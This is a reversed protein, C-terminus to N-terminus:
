LQLLNFQLKTYGHKQAWLDLPVSAMEDVIPEARGSKTMDVTKIYSRCSDCAEVRVHVLEEATYVPLKAHNEEGCGPCVIRRFEWEALCFSCVLSRQGGDGLPRLVGLAPRRKCFPCLFPTPGTWRLSSRSRISAAYPQLFARAFFDHPGPPLSGMESGNWFVTLLQFYSDEGRDRLERAAERLSDPASQEVVSLFTAFRGTLEPPLPRVFPESDAAVGTAGGSSRDLARGLEGHFREQFRAIAVYFRLIEAAFAYQAGLEEARAIRRQWENQAMTRNSM